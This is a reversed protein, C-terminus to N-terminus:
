GATKARVGEVAKGIIIRASQVIRKAPRDIYHCFADALDPEEVACEFVHTRLTRDNRQTHTLVDLRDHWGREGELLGADEKWNAVANRFKLFRRANEIFVPEMGILHDAVHNREITQRIGEFSQPRANPM